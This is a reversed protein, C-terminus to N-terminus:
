DERICEGTVREVERGIGAEIFARVMVVRVMDCGFAGNLRETETVGDGRGVLGFIASKSGLQFCAMFSSNLARISFLVHSSTGRLGLICIIREM